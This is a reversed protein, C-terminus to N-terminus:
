MAYSNMSDIEEDYEDFWSSDLASSDMNMMSKKEEVKSLNYSQVGYLIANFFGLSYTLLIKVFEVWFVEELEHNKRLTRNRLFAFLLSPTWIVFLGIPYVLFRGPSIKMNGALARITIIIRLSYYLSALLLLAAPIMNYVLYVYFSLAREDGGAASAGCSLSIPAYKFTGLGIIPSIM